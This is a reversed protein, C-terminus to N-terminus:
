GRVVLRLVGAAAAAAAVDAPSVNHQLAALAVDWSVMTWKGLEQVPTNNWETTTIGAPKQQGGAKQMQQLRKLREEPVLLILNGVAPLHGLRYRTLQDLRQWGRSVMLRREQASLGSATFNFKSSKTKVEVMAQVQGTKTDSGAVDAAGGYGHAYALNHPLSLSQRLATAASSTECVSAVLLASFAREDCNGGRMQKDLLIGRLAACATVGAAPLGVM